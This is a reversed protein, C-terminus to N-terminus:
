RRAMKGADRHQHMRRRCFGQWHDAEMHDASPGEHSLEGWAGRFAARFERTLRRFRRRICGKARALFSRRDIQQKVAAVTRGEYLESYGRRPVRETDFTGDAQPLGYVRDYLVLNFGKYGEEYLTPSGADSPLEEDDGPAFEDALHRPIALDSNDLEPAAWDHGQKRVAWLGKWAEVRGFAEAVAQTVGPHYLCGNLGSSVYDRSSAVAAQHEDDAVEDRQLELDDGCIIGGDAIIRCAEAIDFAVQHYEHSGDFFIIDFSDEAFRPLIERSDGQLYQINTAEGCAKINHLFLQLIEGSAAASSMESYIADADVEPDFYPKWADVCLVSGAAAAAEIGKAWSIASGGAWSGVELIRVPQANRVRCVARIIPLM